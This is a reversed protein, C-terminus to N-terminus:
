LLLGKSQMFDVPHKAGKQLNCKPHLLQMNDDTNSGGLALPMNHDAHYKGQLPEGCCACRGKQLVLLASILGPSLAGGSERKKARRNARHLRHVDRHQEAWRKKSAAIAEPNKARYEACKALRASRNAANYERQQAAIGDKHSQYHTRKYASIAEGNLARYERDAASKREKNAAVWAKTKAAACVKCMSCLGDKAHADKSYESLSKVSECCRCSKSM